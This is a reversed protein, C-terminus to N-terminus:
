DPTGTISGVLTVGEPQTALWELVRRQLSKTQGNATNLQSMLVSAVAGDRRAEILEGQTGRVVVLFQAHDPNLLLRSVRYGTTVKEPVVVPISLTFEEAM